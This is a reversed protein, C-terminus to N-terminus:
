YFYVQLAQLATIGGTVIRALISPSLAFTTDACISSIVPQVEGQVNIRMIFNVFPPIRICVTQGTFSQLRKCAWGESRLVHNIPTTVISALM